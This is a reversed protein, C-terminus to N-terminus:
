KRVCACRVLIPRGIVATVIVVMVAAKATPTLTLPLGSVGFLGTDENVEADLHDYHDFDDLTDPQGQESIVPENM